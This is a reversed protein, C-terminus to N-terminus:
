SGGKVFKTPFKDLNNVVKNIDALKIFKGKNDFVKIEDIVIRGSDDVGYETIEFYYEPLKLDFAEALKQVNTDNVLSRFAEAKSM